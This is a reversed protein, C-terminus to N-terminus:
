TSPLKRHERHRRVGGGGPISGGDPLVLTSPSGRPGAALVRTGEWPHHERDRAAASTARRELNAARRLHVQDRVLAAVWFVFGLSMVAPVFVYLRNGCLDLYPSTRRRPSGTM